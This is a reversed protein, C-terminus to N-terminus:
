NQVYCTAFVKSWFLYFASTPKQFRHTCKPMWIGVHIYVSASVIMLYMPQKRIFWPYPFLYINLPKMFFDFGLKAFIHNLALSGSTEEQMMQGSCFLRSLLRGRLKQTPEVELISEAKQGNCTSVFVPYFTINSGLLNYSHVM